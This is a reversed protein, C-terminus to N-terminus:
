YGERLTTVAYALQELYRHTQLILCMTASETFAPEKSIDIAERPHIGYNRLDRLYGAYAQLENAAAKLRGVSRMLQCVLDIVKATQDQDLAKALRSDRSRLQEGAAYWAGESVAGLLSAASLYLGHRHATLAEELCRRTRPDLRLVGLDMTFLDVDGVGHMQEHLAIREEPVAPVEIDIREDWSTSSWANGQRIPLVVVDAKRETLVGRRRLEDIAVRAAMQNRQRAIPYADPDPQWAEGSVPLHIEEDQGQTNPIGADDNLVDTLESTTVSRGGDLRAMVLVKARMIDAQSPIVARLFSQRQACSIEVVLM